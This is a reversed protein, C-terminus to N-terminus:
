EQVFWYPTCLWPDAVSTATFCFKLVCIVLSITISICSVTISPKPPPRHTLMNTHAYTDKVTKFGIIMILYHSKM